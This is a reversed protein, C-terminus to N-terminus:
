QADPGSQSQSGKGHSAAPPSPTDDGEMSELIMRRTKEDAVRKVAVRLVIILAMFVFVVVFLLTWSSSGKAVGERLGTDLDMYRALDKMGQGAKMVEEL